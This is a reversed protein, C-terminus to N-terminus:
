LSVVGWFSFKSIKRVGVATRVSFSLEDESVIESIQSLFRSAQSQGMSQWTFQGTLTWFLIFLM